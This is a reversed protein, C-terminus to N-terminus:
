ARKHGADEISPGGGRSQQVNPSQTGYTDSSIRAPGRRPNLAVGLRYPGLPVAGLYKTNPQHDHRWLYVSPRQLQLRRTGSSVIM